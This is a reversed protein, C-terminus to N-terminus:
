RSAIATGQGNWLATLTPSNLQAIMEGGLQNACRRQASARYPADFCTRKAARSIRDIVAQQGALTNLEYRQLKVSVERAQSAAPLALATVIALSAIHLAKM